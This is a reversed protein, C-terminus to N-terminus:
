TWPLFNCFLVTGICAYSIFWVVVDIRNKLCHEIRPSREKDKSRLMAEAAFWYLCPSSSALMRTSVQIHVCLVCFVTLALGHIAFVCKRHAETDGIGLSAFVRPQQWILKGSYFAVFSIIPAALLFNPLQKWEYYKLLGVNWYHSQVYSYSLPLGYSCWPAQDSSTGNFSGALVFGNKEGFERVYDDVDFAVQQCYLHYFYNQVIAFTIVVSILTGILKCANRALKGTQVSDALLFYGVFGLNLMGNSRCLVSAALPFVAALFRREVCSLMLKFSMWCHLSESYAATFFISAPNVCFLVVAIDAVRHSRHIRLTLRHLTKAAMVFALVNLAVATLLLRQRLSAAFLLPELLDTLLRVLAPFLPFFALSNEYTYGHEAIHLFYEADWRRFGGLCFEIIRDFDNETANPKTPSVFVGADHDPILHNAAFQLAVIFFRSAISLGVISVSTEKSLM